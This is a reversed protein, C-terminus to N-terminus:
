VQFRTLMDQLKQGLTHLNRAGTEAQKASVVNQAATGRISEMALVLQDMGILQQQASVAIQTAAQASEVLSESLSRIAGGADSSEQVGADVAKGGQETALVAGNTARQIEDLIGRVQVTAQKSQEALSKVEQAVVSFGRGQEGARAAEIAANVALLNSQEALDNVTTIIDSIARTQDSLQVTSDAILIMQDHIRQMGEIADEVSKSGAQSVQVAQQAV